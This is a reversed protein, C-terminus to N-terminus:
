KGRTGIVIFVFLILMFFVVKLEKLADEVHTLLACGFWMQWWEGAV